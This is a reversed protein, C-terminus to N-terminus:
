KAYIKELADAVVASVFQEYDGGYRAIEKVLTSSIGAYKEHPAFFITELEPALHQNMWNLQFEYEFDIGTRLGRLIINAECEKALETTLGEFGTVEVNELDAVINEIMSVRQEISFLDTKKSSVGVAIIVNDFLAAAREVLNLHGNTFPDFTGPYIVTNKM